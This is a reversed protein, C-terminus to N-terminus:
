ILSKCINLGLGIGDKNQGKKNDFTAYEQSLRAQSIKIFNSKKKLAVEKIRYKQGYIAM